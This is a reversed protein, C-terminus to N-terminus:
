PTPIEEPRINPHIHIQDDPIEGVKELLILLALGNKGATIPHETHPPIVEYYDNMPRRNEGEGIFGSGGIIFYHEYIGDGHTHPPRSTKGNAPIGSVFLMHEEGDTGEFRVGDIAYIADSGPHPRPPDTPKIWPKSLLILTEPQGPVRPVTNRGPLGGTVTLIETGFAEIIKSIERLAQESSFGHSERRQPEQDHSIGLEALAM